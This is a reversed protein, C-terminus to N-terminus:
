RYGSRASLNDFCIPKGAGGAGFISDYRIPRRRRFRVLLRFRLRILKDHIITITRRKPRYETSRAGHVAGHKQRRAHLNGRSRLETCDANGWESATSGRTPVRSRPQYSDVTVVFCYQDLTVPRCDTYRYGGQVTGAVLRNRGGTPDAYRFCCFYFLIAKKLSISDCSLAFFFM